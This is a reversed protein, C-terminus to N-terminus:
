SWVDAEEPLPQDFHLSVDEMLNRKKKEDGKFCKKSNRGEWLEKKM